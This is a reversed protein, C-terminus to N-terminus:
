FYDVIYRATFNASDFDLSYMCWGFYFEMGTEM